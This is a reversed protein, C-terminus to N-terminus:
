RQQDVNKIKSDIMATIQGQCREFGEVWKKLTEINECWPPEIAMSWVEDKFKELEEITM